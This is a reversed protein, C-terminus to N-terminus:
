IKLLKRIDSDAGTFYLHDVLTTDITGDSNLRTIIIYNDNNNSSMLYIKNDLTKIINYIQGVTSPLNVFTNDIDNDVIRVM